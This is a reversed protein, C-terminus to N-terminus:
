LSVRVCREKFLSAGTDRGIWRLPRMADRASTPPSCWWYTRIQTKPVCVIMERLLDADSSKGLLARLTTMEDTM